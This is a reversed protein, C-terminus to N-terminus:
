PSARRRPVQHRQRDPEPLAPGAAGRRGARDAAPRQHGRRRKGRHDRASERAGTEPRRQRRDLAFPQGKRGLRSYALLNQILAQMRRAGDVMYGIFEDADADLKGKYQAALLQAFSSVKRLPEQLDHSAVYAFQELEQNSRSLEATRHQVRQELEANLRRTEEEARKRQLSVQNLEEMMQNQKAVTNKLDAYLTANELSIAIQGALVDILERRDASFM